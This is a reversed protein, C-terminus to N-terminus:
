CFVITHVYHAPKMQTFMHQIKSKSARHLSLEVVFFKCPSEIVTVSCKCDDGNVVVNELSIEQLKQFMVLIQKAVGMLGVGM